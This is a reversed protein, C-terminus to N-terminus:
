LDKDREPIPENYDERLFYHESPSSPDIVLATLIGLGHSKYAAGTDIKIWNAEIIPRKSPTHGFVRFYGDDPFSFSRSWVADFEYQATGHGTHSLLLKGEKIYVPLSDIWQAHTRIKSKDDYSRLTELAGNMTWVGPDYDRGNRLISDAMMHDHNGKVCRISNKIAWDVVQASYPGRDVLDGLLVVEHDQPCKALLRMLTHYCGHVDSVLIM